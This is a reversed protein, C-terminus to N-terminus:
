STTIYKIFDNTSKISTIIATHILNCYEKEDFHNFFVIKTNNSRNIFYTNWYVPYKNLIYNIKKRITDSIFLANEIFGYKPLIYVTEKEFDSWIIFRHHIYGTYLNSYSRSDVGKTIEVLPSPTEIFFHKSVRIIESLADDPKQIDELVHRCYTFDFEKNAFPIKQKDLDVDIFDKVRENYGIFTKALPFPISGPGIELINELKKELCSSILYRLIIPNTYWYVNEINTVQRENDEEKDVYLNINYKEIGPIKRSM